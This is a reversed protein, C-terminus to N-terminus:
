APDGDVEVKDARVWAEGDGEVPRILVDTRGFNTRTDAVQVRVRAGDARSLDPGAITGSRRVFGESRSHLYHHCKRCLFEVDLPKEYDDHHAEIRGDGGCGECRDPRDLEGKRIAYRAKRRAREKQKPTIM